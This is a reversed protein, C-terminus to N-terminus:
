FAILHTANAKIFGPLDKASVQETDKETTFKAGYYSRFPETRPFILAGEVTNEPTMSVLLTISDIESPKLRLESLVNTRFESLTQTPVDLFTMRVALEAQNVYAYTSFGYNVVYMSENSGIIWGIQHAAGAVAMGVFFCLGCLIMGCVTWKGQWQFSAGRARAIGCSLWRLLGHALIAIVGAFVLFTVIAEWSWSIKPFVRAIFQTWGSVLVWVIQFMETFIPIMLVFAVIFFLIILTALRGFRRGVQRPSENM